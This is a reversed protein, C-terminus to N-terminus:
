LLSGHPAAARKAYVREHREDVRGGACGDERLCDQKGSSGDLRQRGSRVPVDNLAVVTM